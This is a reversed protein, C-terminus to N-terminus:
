KWESSSVGVVRSVLTSIFIFVAVLFFITSRVM